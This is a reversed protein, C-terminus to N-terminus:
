AALYVQLWDALPLEAPLGESIELGQQLDWTSDFWGAASGVDCLPRAANQPELRIVSSGTPPQLQLVEAVVALPSRRPRTRCAPLQAAGRLGPGPHVALDQRHAPLRFSLTAM